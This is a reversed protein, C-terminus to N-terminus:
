RATKPRLHAPLVTQDVSLGKTMNWCALSAAIKVTIDADRIDHYGDIPVTTDVNHMEELRNIQLATHLDVRGHVLAMALVLSAMYQTMAYLSVVQYRNLKMALLARYVKDRTADSVKSSILGHNRPTKVAFHADFWDCIPDCLKQEIDKLQEHRFYLNDSLLFSLMHEYRPTLSLEDVAQSGSAVDNMPMLLKNITGEQDAWEKAVAHAMAESPLFLTDNSELAKVRRGDLAVTYWGDAVEVVEVEKWFVKVRTAVKKDSVGMHFVDDRTSVKARQEEMENFAKYRAEFEEPSMSSIQQIRDEIEHMPSSLIPRSPNLAPSSSPFQDAMQGAAQM